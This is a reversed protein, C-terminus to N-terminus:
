VKKVEGRLKTKVILRYNQCQEKGAFGFLAVLKSTGDKDETEVEEELQNGKLTYQGDICELHVWDSKYGIALKFVIKIELKYVVIHHSTAGQITM